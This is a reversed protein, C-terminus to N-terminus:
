LHNVARLLHASRELAKAVRTRHCQQPLREYCTLAVREGGAICDLISELAETQSPLTIREYSPEDECERTFLFLLKQFNMHGAPQGLADLLTLLLQQRKFLM